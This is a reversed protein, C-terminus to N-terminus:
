FHMGLHKTQIQRGLPSRATESPHRDWFRHQGPVSRQLQGHQPQLLQDVPAGFRAAAGKSCSTIYRSCCLTGRKPDWGYPLRGVFPHARSISYMMFRRCIRLIAQLKRFHLYTAARLDPSVVCSDAREYQQAELEKPPPM